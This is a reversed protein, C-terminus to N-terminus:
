QDEKSGDYDPDPILDEVYAFFNGMPKDVGVHRVTWGDLAGQLTYEERLIQVPLLEDTMEDRYLMRSHDIM